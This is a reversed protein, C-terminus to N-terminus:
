DILAHLLKEFQAKEDEERISSRADEILFVLASRQLQDLTEDSIPTRAKQRLRRAERRLSKLDRM